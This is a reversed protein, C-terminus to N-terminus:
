KLFGGSGAVTATKGNTGLANRRNGRWEGDPRTEGNWSSVAGGLGVASGPMKSGNSVPHLSDRSSNASQHNSPQFLPQRSSLEVSRHDSSRGTDTTM